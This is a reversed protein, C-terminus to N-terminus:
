AISKTVHDDWIVSSTAKPEELSMHLAARVHIHTTDYIPLCSDQPGILLTQETCGLIVGQAGQSKLSTIVGKYAQRAKDTIIGKTLEDYIITNVLSREEKNPIVVEIGMKELRGCYFDEEMTYCTGLLGVKNHQNALIRHGTADAIHLFPVTIAAEIQETLKHMTNTALIIFDAGAKELRAAEHALLEGQTKWDGKQKLAVFDAFDVSSLIVRAGHHGGLQERVGANLWHYYKVTSEPSLGGIIGVTKM